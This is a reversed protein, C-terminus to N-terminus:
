QLMIKVTNGLHRQDYSRKIPCLHFIVNQTVLVERKIRANKQNALKSRLM